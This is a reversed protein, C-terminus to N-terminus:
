STRARVADSLYVSGAVVQRLAQLFALADGKMVYGRAGAQIVKQAYITEDHGSAVLIALGARLGLMAKLLALGSPEGPLSIDMVVVDPDAQPLQRLADAGSTANGCVQLDPERHILLAYGQCVVASDDVIFIRAM